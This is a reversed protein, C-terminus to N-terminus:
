SLRGRNQDRSWGCSTKRGAAPLSINFFTLFFLCVYFGWLFGNEKTVIDWIMYYKKKDYGKYAKGGMNGMNGIVWLGYGMHLGQGSIWM